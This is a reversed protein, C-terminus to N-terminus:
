LKPKIYSHIKLVKFYVREVEKIFASGSFNERVVKYSELALSERLESNNILELLRKVFDNEDEPKALMGSKKDCIIETIGDIAPALVPIKCAMAELVTMPTGEFRSTLLFIDVAPYLTTIDDVYGLFSIYKSIGLVEALRKLDNMDPGDGAIVFHVNKNIKLVEGAIHLFLHFNKQYYLRGVGAIIIKDEPLDWKKRAEIKKEPQPFFRETDIGNLIVSIKDQPIKEYKVLFDKTSTSVAIIHSSFKNMLKDAILRYKQKYRYIDNCHDHNVIAPIKCLTSLPKAILNSGILHCHVLDYKNKILHYILNPIYVPILKNPSFSYVPIGLQAIKKFYAGRGHLGGVEISFLDKNIFKIINLVVEQAGGLGFSDM